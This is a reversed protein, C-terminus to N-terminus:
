ASFLLELFICICCIISKDFLNEWPLILQNFSYIGVAKGETFASYKWLLYNTYIYTNNMYDNVQRRSALYTTKRICRM